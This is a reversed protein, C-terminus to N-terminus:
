AAEPLSQWPWRSPPAGHVRLHWRKFFEVEREYGAVLHGARLPLGYKAELADRERRYDAAMEVRVGADEAFHKLRNWAKTPVIDASLDEWRPLIGDYEGVRAPM